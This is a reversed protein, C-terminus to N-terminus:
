QVFTENPKHSCLSCYGMPNALEELVGHKNVQRASKWSMDTKFYIFLLLICVHKVRTWPKGTLPSVSGTGDHVLSCKRQIPACGGVLYDQIDTGANREQLNSNQAAPSGQEKSINIVTWNGSEQWTRVLGQLDQIMYFSAM